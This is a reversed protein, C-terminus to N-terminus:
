HELCSQSLPAQLTGCYMSSPRRKRAALNSLFLIDLSSQESHGVYSTPSFISPISSYM